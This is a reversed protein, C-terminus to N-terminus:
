GAIRLAAAENLRAAVEAVAAATLEPYIPLSLV